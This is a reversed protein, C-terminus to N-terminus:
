QRSEEEGSRRGSSHPRDMGGAERDQVGILGSPLSGPLALVHAGPDSVSFYVSADEPGDFIQGRTWDIPDGERRCDRGPVPNWEPLIPQSGADVGIHEGADLAPPGGIANQPARECGGLAIWGTFTAILWPARRIM